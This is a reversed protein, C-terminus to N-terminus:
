CYTPYNNLFLWILINIIIFTNLFARPTLEPNVLYVKMINPM